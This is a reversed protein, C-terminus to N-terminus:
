DRPPLEGTKKLYATAGERRRKEKLILGFVEAGIAVSATVPGPPNDPEWGLERIFASLRQRCRGSCTKADERNSEFHEACWACITTVRLLRKRRYKTEKPM